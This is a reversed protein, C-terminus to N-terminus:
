DHVLITDGNQLYINQEAHKGKTAFDKYNFEFREEPETRIIVIHKQDAWQQFGGTLNLADFVRIPTPMPYPGPRLVMGTVTYKKSNVQLVSVTVEPTQIYTALAQKLQAALREPTLGAAQVDGVLPITIKGDPRVAHTDSFTSERWVVIKLVDQPGIEYTKIDVGVPLSDIGPAPPNADTVQQPPAQSGLQQPLGDQAWAVMSVPVVLLVALRATRTM